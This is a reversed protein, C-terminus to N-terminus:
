AGEKNEGMASNKRGEQLRKLHDSYEEEAEQRMAQIVNAWGITQSIKSKPKITNEPTALYVKGGNAEAEKILIEQALAKGFRRGSEMIQITKENELVKQRAPAEKQPPTIEENM